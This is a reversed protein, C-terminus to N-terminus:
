SDKVTHGPAPSHEGLAFQTNEISARLIPHEQLSPKSPSPFVHVLLPLYSRHCTVPLVMAGVLGSGERVLTM